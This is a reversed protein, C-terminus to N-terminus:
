RTTGSSRARRRRADRARRNTFAKGTSGTSFITDADVPSTPAHHRTVGWGRALTVKGDEVIAITVGPVGFAKRLLEVRQQSARPRRPPQLRRCSPLPLVWGRFARLKLM